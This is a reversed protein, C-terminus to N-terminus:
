QGWGTHQLMQLFFEYHALVPARTLYKKVQQSAKECDESWKWPQNTQLLRHLPHLLTPLDPIFKAYYNIMGLVSRLERINAPSPAEM